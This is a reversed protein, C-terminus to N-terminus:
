RSSRAEAAERALKLAEARLAKASQPQLAEVSRAIRLKDAADHYLPGVEKAAERAVAPTTPSIPGGRVRAQTLERTGDLVGIRATSVRRRPM